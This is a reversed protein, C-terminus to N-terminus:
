LQAVEVAVVGPVTDAAVEAISRDLLTRPGTIRVAGEHVEVVWDEHELDRLLSGIDDLIEHDHRARTQIVDSRSIIGVVREEDDVVPISKLRANAMLQVVDALDTKESVTIAPSSMVESVLTAPRRRSGTQPRLHARIDPLIADRLLDVESVVGRIRGQADVVPLASVRRLALLDVATKVHTDGTVTAPDRTMLEKVLM